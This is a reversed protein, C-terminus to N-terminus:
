LADDGIRIDSDRGAIVLKLILEVIKWIGSDKLFGEDTEDVWFFIKYLFDM